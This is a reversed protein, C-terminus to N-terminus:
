RKRCSGSPGPPNGFFLAIKLTGPDAHGSRHVSDSPFAVGSGPGLYDVEDFGAVQMTSKTQSLLFVITLVYHTGQETDRHWRFRAQPSDQRLIHASLFELSGAIEKCFDLMEPFGGIGLRLLEVRDGPLVTTFKSQEKADLHDAHTKGYSNYGQFYETTWRRGTCDTVMLM